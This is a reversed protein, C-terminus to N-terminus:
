LYWICGLLGNWTNQMAHFVRPAVTLNEITGKELTSDLFGQYLKGDVLKWGWDQPPLAVGRWQQVQHYARLSHYVPDRM